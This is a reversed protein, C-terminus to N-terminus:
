CVIFIRPKHDPVDLQLSHLGWIVRQWIFVFLCVFFFSKYHQIYFDDKSGLDKLRFLLWVDSSHRKEKMHMFSADICPSFFCFLVCCWFFFGCHEKCSNWPSLFKILQLFPELKHSNFFIIIIKPLKYTHTMIKTCLFFFDKKPQQFRKFLCMEM